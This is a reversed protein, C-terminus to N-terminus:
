DTFAKLCVNCQYEAEASSWQEGDPSVYGQGDSLIADKTLESAQYEIAIPRENGPTVVHVIVAFQKGSYLMIEEPFDVTYYGSEECYGHGLYIPNSLQAMNTYEPIVYVEYETAQDVAYFSIAKLNEDSAVTYVNAFWAEPQEYGLTGVWGLMDTQYITSYNDPHELRAYVVGTSGLVADEYSVYFYGEDGFTEGWSNRCIFAGDKEPMHKFNERSYHDDWGIIVVDHNAKADGLYYYASNLPEYDESEDWANSISMYIPSEVGGYDLIMSKIYAVDKKQFIRAEQLHMLAKLTSDTIGDGYPDETGSVPGRWASLYAITMNYDGGQTPSINFGSNMTMHDVAFTVAEGEPMATELAATAAFAWCTGFTGQDKVNSLTRINRLDYYEPLVHKEEEIFDIEFGEDDVEKANTELIRSESEMYYFDCGSVQFIVLVIILVVFYRKIRNLDARRNKEKRLNQDWLNM